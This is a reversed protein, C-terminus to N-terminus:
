PNLTPAISLGRRGHRSRRRAVGLAASATLGAVAVSPEPVRERIQIGAITLRSSSSAIGWGMPWWGDPGLHMETPSVNSYSTEIYLEGGASKWRSEGPSFVKGPFGILEVSQFLNPEPLHYIAIDYRRDSRASIVHFFPVLGGLQSPTSVNSLQLAGLPASPSATATSDKFDLGMRRRPTLQRRLNDPDDSSGAPYPALGFEDRPGQVGWDLSNNSFFDSGVRNWYTGGPSSLLLDDLTSTASDTFEFNFTHYTEAVAVQIAIVSNFIQCILLLKLSQM